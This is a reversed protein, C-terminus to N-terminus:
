AKRSRGALRRIREALDNRGILGKEVLLQALAQLVVSSDLGSSAPPAAPASRESAAPSEFGLDADVDAVPEGAFPADALDDTGADDEAGFPLEAFGGMEPDTDGFPAEDLGALPEDGAASFSMGNPDEGFGTLTPDMPPLQPETESDTDEPNRAPEATKMPPLSAPAGGEASPAKAAAAGPMLADGHYHRQLADELETPAVLVAKVDHQIRFSLEDLAQLDSPDEMALFLTHGAGEERLFLPLCRYKEALEVPVLDLIEANVTKGRIRAVPLQLQQALCQVLVEEELFGMRVLTMGLRSGWREQEGLASALQEPGILGKNILLQGLKLRGAM